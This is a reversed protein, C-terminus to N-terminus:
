LGMEAKLDEWDVTPEDTNLAKEISALDIKNELMELLKVDEMPVLCAVPKNKRTLSIREKAFAVKNVTDAFNERADRMAITNM